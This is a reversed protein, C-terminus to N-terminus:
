EYKKERIKISEIESQFIGQKAAKEVAWKLLLAEIEVETTDWLIFTFVYM